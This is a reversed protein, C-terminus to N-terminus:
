GALWEHALLVYEYTDQWIPRGEQDRRFFVNQRLHGERRFGLRELLRRSASNLPNCPAVLRHAKPDGVAHDIVASCGERACGQERYGASHRAM